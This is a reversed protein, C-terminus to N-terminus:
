EEELRKKLGLIGHPRFVLIGILVTFTVLDMWESSFQWIMLSQLLALIVGGLIWGEYRDIGGALVAVAAILLYSMGMYPDIGVDIVILGGALGALATSLLFVWSRYRMLPLGLVSILGPEDGMAWIIKFTKVKKIAIGLAILAVTCVLFQYIQISTLSIPGLIIQNALERDITKLESGFGIALVNEIVIFAGLSAVIISGGSTNRRFLPRYLIRELVYGMIAAVIIGYIIALWIPVQMWTSTAYVTYPAILFLGAFAIHFIRVSRYILGFSCALLAFLAGNVLGNALLQLLLNM